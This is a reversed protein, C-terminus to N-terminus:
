PRHKITHPSRFWIVVSKNRRTNTSIIVCTNIVYTSIICITHKLYVLNYKRPSVNNQHLRSKELKKLHCASVAKIKSKITKNIQHLLATYIINTLYRKPQLSTELIRKKLNRKEKHKNQLEANMITRPIKKKLRVTGNM